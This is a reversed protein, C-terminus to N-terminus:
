EAAKLQRLEAQLELIQGQDRERGVELSEIRLVSQRFLVQLDSYDARVSALDQRAQVVANEATEKIEKRDAKLEEIYQWVEGKIQADRDLDLKGSAPKNDSIKEILKLVSGFIGFVGGAIAIALTTEM